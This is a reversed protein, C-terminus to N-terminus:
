LEIQSGLEVVRNPPIKFFTTANLSNKSMFMFLRKRWAAMRMRRKKFAIVFAERGLFYTVQMPDFRLDSFQLSKLLEPIDPTESFGYSAMMRYIGAGVFEIRVRKDASVFPIEETKVTLILTHEHLVKNHKLNHLLAKPVVQPNGGLFVAIGSVRQIPSQQISHVFTELDMAGALM